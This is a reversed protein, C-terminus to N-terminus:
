DNSKKYLDLIHKELLRKFKVLFFEKPHIPTTLISYMGARNAGYVDTFIQDGVVAIESPKLGMHSSAKLFAGTGPKSARHIAFLKLNENFTVVRTKSANSVICAKFGCDQIKKIWKVVNEDAYKVHSAVLTNDIDLILGKIGKEALEDLDIDQVKQVINKPFFRKLLKQM